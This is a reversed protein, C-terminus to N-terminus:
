RRLSHNLNFAVHELRDTILGSSSSGGCASLSFIVGMFMAGGVLRYPNCRTM